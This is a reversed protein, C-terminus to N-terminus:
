QYAERFRNTIINSLLNLGLTIFFLILALSFLSNYQVSHYSIDGGSIRAIHGTITEAGLFPNLNLFPFSDLPSMPGAGAALAVIMTEGFARSAALIIAATIGSLAGPVLVRITTEYRTAGLGLSAERLSRPVARLADECMTSILPILIFGVVIGASLTNYIQVVNQGFAGRLIPTVFGLAFYGLVVTPIGALIELIPKITRRANEPAYEALYIASGMGLPIAVTLAILTIILTSMLLPWIGFHGTEPSWRNSGFYDFLSVRVARKVTKNNDHAVATTNNDGRTVTYTGPTCSTNEEPICNTQILMYEDTIVLADGVRWVSGGTDLVIETTDAEIAQQLHKEQELVNWNTFFYLSENGLTLIIGVTTLVSILGCAFLIYRIFDDVPRPTKKLGSVKPVLRKSVSEAMFQEM